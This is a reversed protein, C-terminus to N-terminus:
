TKVLAVDDHISVCHYNEEYSEIIQYNSAFTANNKYKQLM